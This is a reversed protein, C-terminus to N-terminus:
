RCCFHRYEISWNCKKEIHCFLTLVLLSKISGDKTLSFPVQFDITGTIEKTGSGPPRKVCISLNRDTWLLRTNVSKKQLYIQLVNWSHACSPAYYPKNSISIRRSHGMNRISTILHKKPVVSHLIHHSRSVTPMLALTKMWRVNNRRCSFWATRYFLFPNLIKLSLVPKKSKKHFITEWKEIGCHWKIQWICRINLVNTFM